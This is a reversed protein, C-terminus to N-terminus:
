FGLGVRSVDWVEESMLFIRNNQSSVVSRDVHFEFPFISLPECRVKKLCFRFTPNSLVWLGV